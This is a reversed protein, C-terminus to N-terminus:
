RKRKKRPKTKKKKVSNKKKKSGKAKSRSKGFDHPLASPWRKLDPPFSSDPMGEEILTLLAAESREYAERPALDTASAAFQEIEERVASSELATLPTWRHVFDYAWLEGRRHNEAFSIKLSQSLDFLYAETPPDIWGSQHLYTAVYPMGWIIVAVLSSDYAFPLDSLLEFYVECDIITPRFFHDPAFRPRNRLIKLFGDIMAISIPFPLALRDLQDVAFGWSLRQFIEDRDSQSQWDVSDTSARPVTLLKVLSDALHEPNRSLSRDELARLSQLDPEGGSRITEYIGQCRAVILLQHLEQQVIDDIDSPDYEPASFIETALQECRAIQGYFMLLRLAYLFIRADDVAIQPFYGLTQDLGQHDNRFLQWALVPEELYAMETAHFAPARERILYVLSVLREPLVGPELNSLISGMDVEDLFANDLPYAFSDRIFELQEVMSLEDLHDVWRDPDRVLEALLSRDEELM